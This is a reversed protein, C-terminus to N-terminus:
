SLPENDQSYDGIIAGTVWFRIGSNFISSITDIDSKPLKANNIKMGVTKTYTYKTRAHINPVKLKKVAYGYLTFFDDVIDVYEPKLYKEYFQARMCGATYLATGTSNCKSVNPKREMTLLTSTIDLLSSLGSSAGSIQNQNVMSEASNQAREIAAPSPKAGVLSNQVMCNAGISASVASMGVGLATNLLSFGLKIGNNAFWDKFSDINYNLVPFDNMIFKEDYNISLGRYNVPVFIQTPTGNIDNYVNFTIQKTSGTNTFEFNEYLYDSSNGKNDSLYLHTFPFTYLKNNKPQTGDKRRANFMDLTNLNIEFKTMTNSNEVVSFTSPVMLVSVIGNGKSNATARNIFKYLNNMGTEDTGFSTYKLGSYVGNYVNYNVDTIEGTEYPEAIQFTSAVVIKLHNNLFLFSDSLEKAYYESFNFAEPVVNDGIKDTASHEREVFCSKLEYDINPLWTQMADLTYYLRTAKENVYEVSTIFCYFWKNEYSLNNFRMYNCTYLREYPAEIIVSNKEREVRYNNTFINMATVKSSFYANQSERSDFYYTDNYDLDLPIESFLQITSNPVVGM